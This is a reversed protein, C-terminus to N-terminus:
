AAKTCSEQEHRAVSRVFSERFNTTDWAPHSIGASALGGDVCLEVGNILRAEDSALWAIARAVDTPRVLQKSPYQQAERGEYQPDLLRRKRWNPSDTVVIGPRVLNFRILNGFHATLEAVVATLATKAVGYAFQGRIGRGPQGNHTGLFCVVGNGQKLMFRRLADKTAFVPAALNIDLLRHFQDIDTELLNDKAPHDGATGVNNVLLDLRGANLEIQDFFQTMHQPNAANAVTFHMRGGQECVARCTRNGREEDVDCSYVFYGHRVALELATAAGIGGAGVGTIAAVQGSVRPIPGNRHEHWGDGFGEDQAPSSIRIMDSQMNPNSTQMAQRTVIPVQTTANTM